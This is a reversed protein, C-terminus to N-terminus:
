SVKKFVNMIDRRIRNHNNFASKRLEDTCHLVNDDDKNISSNYYERNFRDLFDLAERAEKAKKPNDSKSM